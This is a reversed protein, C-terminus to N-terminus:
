VEVILWNMVRGAAREDDLVRNPVRWFTASYDDELKALEERYLDITAATKKAM